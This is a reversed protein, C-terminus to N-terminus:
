RKSLILWLVLLAGGIGLVWKVGTSLAAIGMTDAGTKAPVTGNSPEAAGPNSLYSLAKGLGFYNSASDLLSTNVAATSAPITASAGVISGGGGAVAGPSGGAALSGGVVAAAGVATAIVDQQLTHEPGFIAAGSQSSIPGLLVANKITNVPNVITQTVNSVVNKVSNVVKSLFSM